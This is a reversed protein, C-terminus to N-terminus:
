FRLVKQYIAILPDRGGSKPPPVVWAWVGGASALDTGAWPRDLRIREPADAYRELARYMQGTADDVLTAGDAVFAREDIADTALADKIAVEGAITPSATPVLNIQVPAPSDTQTVTGSGRTWYRTANGARRCVFVTFEVLRSDPAVRKCVATWCYQKDVSTATSPYLHEETPVAVLQAYPVYGDTKLAAHNPDLGYLRIKAFAEDVVVTAITRETSLTAFYVGALFTGAVFVMGIALTGVALLTEM